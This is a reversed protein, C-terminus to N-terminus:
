ERDCLRAPLSMLAHVLLGCMYCGMSLDGTPERRRGIRQLQAAYWLTSWSAGVLPISPLWRPVPATWAPAADAAHAFFHTPLAPDLASARGVGIADADGSAIAAEMGARSVFGGTVIVRMRSDGLVGHCRRAFERFFGERRASRTGEIFVANEYSGGSIECFDVARTAALWAVNQLADDESQGGHVYDGSNLKIGVVFTRPVCARVADIIEAVIRFRNEPSGGYADTRRNVHPNLFQSLLYGHAAHLEIGDFGADACFRACSAFRAVVDRIEAETLARPTGFMAADVAHVKGTSVPVASPAVAPTWPARGAGRMSQRGPHNLQVIALPRRKPPAGSHIAAALERFRPAYRARRQPADAPPIVVDFPLGLHREDVEVNGTIVMGWGGAAWRRYLEIHTDSPPGGLYTSLVEEMPAKALRNPMVAGSPLELASELSMPHTGAYTVCNIYM